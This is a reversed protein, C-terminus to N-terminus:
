LEAIRRLIELRDRQTSIVREKEANAKKLRETEARKSNM